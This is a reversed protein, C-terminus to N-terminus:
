NEREPMHGELASKVVTVADDFGEVFKDFDEKYLFIKHKEFSANGDKDTKKKSETITLYYDNNRTAKVDMFYTRKGAKVAKSYIEERDENMEMDDNKDYGVM